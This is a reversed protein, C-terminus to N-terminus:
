CEDGQFAAVLGPIPESGWSRSCLWPARFATLDASDYAANGGSLRRRGEALGSKGPSAPALPDDNAPSFPGDSCDNRYRIQSEEFLQFVAEVDADGEGPEGVRLLFPNGVGLDALAGPQLDVICGPDHRHCANPRAPFGVPPKLAAEGGVEGGRQAKGVEVTEGVTITMLDKGVVLQVAYTTRSPGRKVGYEAQQTFNSLVILLRFVRIMLFFSQTLLGQGLFM